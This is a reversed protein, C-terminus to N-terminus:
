RFDILNGFFMSLSNAYCASSSESLVNKEIKDHPRVGGRLKCDKVAEPNPPMSNYRVAFGISQHILNPNGMFQFRGLDIITFLVFVIVLIWLTKKIVSKNMILAIKLLVM